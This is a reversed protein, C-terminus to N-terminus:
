LNRLRELVKDIDYLEEGTIEAAQESLALLSDLNKAFQITKRSITQTPNKSSIGKSAKKMDKVIQDINTGPKTEEIHGPTGQRPANPNDLGSASRIPSEGAKHVRGQNIPNLTDNASLSHVQEKITEDEVRLTMDKGAIIKSKNEQERRRSDTIEKQVKEIFEKSMEIGEGKKALVSNIEKAIGELDQQGIREANIDFMPVKSKYNQIAKYIDKESIPQSLIYAMKALEKDKKAQLVKVFEPDIDTAGEIQEDIKGVIEKYLQELDTEVKQAEALLEAYATAEEVGDTELIEAVDKKSTAFRLNNINIKTNLAKKAEPSIQTKREQEEKLQQKRIEEPTMKKKSAEEKYEIDLANLRRKLKDSSQKNRPQIAYLAFKMGEPATKPVMGDKKAQKITKIVKDRSSVTSALVHVGLKPEVILMPFVVAAKAATLVMDKALLAGTLAGQTLQQRAKKKEEKEKKKEKDEKEKNGRDINEAEAYVGAFMENRMRSLGQGARHAANGVPKAVTNELFNGYKKTVSIAQKGIGKALLMKPLLEDVSLKATNKGATFGFVKRWIPDMKVMFHLFIFSIFIGILSTETLKLATQIFITYILAHVSQLTVSYTFDKLLNSLMEGKGRGKKNVKELAYAVGIFPSLLALIIVTLFRKFYVLLFRIGYYVLIIYMTMGAFGSTFKLEYAKSRVSEYLSIETGDEYKPIVWSIFTENAIIIGYMIYSIVFIIIFGGLWSLLMQKYTAKKETASTLATQIGLYILILLMIIIALIRFLYYWSAVNTKITYIIGDKDVVAGGASELNFFNIDLIPVKNYVINEVTVNAKSSTRLQVNGGIDAISQMGESIYGEDGPQGTAQSTTEQTQNEQVERDIEDITNPDKQWDDVREDTVGTVSNVIGDVIFREVIATWGVVVIRIGLTLIGVLYDLIEGLKSIIWKGFPASAKYGQIKAIGSYIFGNEDYISLNEEEIDDGGPVSGSPNVDVSNKLRLAIANESSSGPTMRSCANHVNMPTGGFNAHKGDGAYMEAHGQVILIDGPQLEEGSVDDFYENGGKLNNYATTSGPSFGYDYLNVGLANYYIWHVFCTCCGYFTGSGDSGGSWWCISNGNLSKLNSTTYSSQSAYKGVYDIAWQSAYEGCQADYGRAFCSTMSSLTIYVILYIVILKKFASKLKKM